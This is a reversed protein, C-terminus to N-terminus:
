AGCHCARRGSGAPRRRPLYTGRRADAHDAGDSLVFVGAVTRGAVDRVADELASGLATEGHSDGRQWDGPVLPKAGAAELPRLDRDFLWSVIEFDGSRSLEEAAPSAATLASRMEDWRSRGDPGDPVTMSESADALVIVVSAQRSKRVSVITPRVLCLVLALFALLRLSVLVTLRHGGARTRDPPIAVLVAALLLTVLAVLSWSGVPDFHVSFEDLTTAAIM